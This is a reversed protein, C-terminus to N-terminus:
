SSWFSDNLTCADVLKVGMEFNEPNFFFWFSSQDSSATQGDFSMIQASGGSGATAYAVQIAFRGGLACAINSSPICGVPPGSEILEKLAEGDSQGIFISPIIVDPATGAMAILGDGQNNYVIVGAAGAAQANRVKDVFACNGRQLVVIKGAFDGSLSGCAQLPSAVAGLGTPQHDFPSPGFQPAQAAFPGFGDPSTIEAQPAVAWIASNETVNAGDWVVDPANKASVRRQGTSMDPWHLGKENDFIFYDYAGPFDVGMSSFFYEGTEEDVFSSFGLGHGVEHLLTNSLDFLNSPAHGDSGYYYGTGAGLCEEDINKNVFVEIDATCTPFDDNFNEGFLAEALAIHYSTPPDDSSTLVCFPRAAALVAGSQDCPLDDFHAFVTVSGASGLLSGWHDLVTQLAFLRQAGLTTGPNVGVPDMPTPDNFGQNPADGVQISFVTTGAQWGEDQLLPVTLDTQLFGLASSLFPGMLVPRLNTNWHSITSGPEVPNPAYLQVRGQSDAGSPVSSFHILADGFLAAPCLAVVTALAIVHASLGRNRNM